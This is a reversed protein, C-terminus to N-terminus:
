ERVQVIAVEHVLDKSDENIQEKEEDGEVQPVNPPGHTGFIDEDDVEGIGSLPSIKCLILYVIGSVFFGLPWCLYYIRSWPLSITVKAGVSHLFGPFTPWVGMIWAVITRWNCGKWYWYVSNPTADYLASLKVQRKHVFFYDFVMLGTMPALFVAYGSMVSIFATAGSSLAWPCMAISMVLTIYAGRRINIYKPLLSTLDIGGSLCNGPINIGLQALTFVLSAFFVAARAGKTNEHLQIATLLGYPTWLLPEEPYIKAASSACILGIVCVITGSIPAIIVQSVLPDIPRRAFRTYDSQSLIGACIAGLSASLGHFIAWVLNAGKAAEVGVLELGESRLLPGGGGARALSWIFMIIATISSCSAITIMPIRLKEPPILLCPITILTFLVFCLFDASTMGTSVPMTNKMTYIGPIISGILTKLCQAGLWGQTACWTFSLIIRNILPFYSARLGWVMRNWMPFGVHWRAGMQGTCVIVAAVLFGGLVNVIMAQSVTLGLSMLSAGSAWGSVNVGSTIWFGAYSWMGWNRRSPPLPVNDRNLWKSNQWVEAEEESQPVQLKLLITQKDWVM